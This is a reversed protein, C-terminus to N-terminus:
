HSDSLLPIDKIMNISEECIKLWPTDGFTLYTIPYCSIGIIVDFTKPFHREMTPFSYLLYQVKTPFPTNLITLM